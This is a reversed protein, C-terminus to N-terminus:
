LTLKMTRIKEAMKRREVIEQLSMAPEDANGSNNLREIIVQYVMETLAKAPDEAERIDHLDTHLVSAAEEQKEQEQFRDVIAAQDVHGLASQEYLARCITQEVDNPFDEPAILGQVTRIVKIDDAMWALLTRRARQAGSGKESTRRPRAVPTRGASRAAETRRVQEIEEVTLGYRAAVAEQYTRREVEEDLQNLERAAAHCFAIKGQPESLDFTGALTEVGFMFGDVAHDIRQQYGEAGEAKILEDPDKYPQMRVVRTNIDVARLMAIARLAAKVGAEDSDYTIYVQGVFRKLLKAQENTLSTGLSAVANTFGAQHLSIVDMYGECLLMFPKKSRKAAFLGYLHRSKDFVPTQPSNLYKPQADGMVRGGFGIVKQNMDMIPFMVRNWFRDSVGNKESIDVLGAQQMMDPEFEKEKLYRYLHDGGKGAYGLGFSRITEDSLGRGKLYNKAREGQPTRLNAFYYTAAEKNMELMRTRRDHAAREGASFQQEPLTIHAREALYRIAEPYTMNEHEMLFTYVSGGKHCGFCYYLQTSRQVTFSPTKENHFPCLGVYNSGRKKLTVFSGIVDVIDNALRVQEVIDEPYYM